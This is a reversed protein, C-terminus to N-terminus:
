IQLHERSNLSDSASPLGLLVSVMGSTVVQKVYSCCSYSLVSSAILLVDTLELVHLVDIGTEKGLGLTSSMDPLPRVSPQTSSPAWALGGAAGPGNIETRESSNLASLAPCRQRLISPLTKLLSTSM